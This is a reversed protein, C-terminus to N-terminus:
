NMIPKAESKNIPHSKQSDDQTSATVISNAESQQKAKVKAQSEMLKSFFEIDQKRRNEEHDHSVV